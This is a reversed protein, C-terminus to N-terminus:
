QHSTGNIFFGILSLGSERRIVTLKMDGTNFPGGTLRVKYNLNYYDRGGNSGALVADSFAADSITGILPYLKNLQATLQEQSMQAKALNDFKAFLGVNDKTNYLKVVEDALRGAESESVDVKTKAPETTASSSSPRIALYSTIGLNLVLLGVIVYNFTSSKESAM